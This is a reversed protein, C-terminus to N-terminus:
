NAGICKRQKSQSLASAQGTNIGQLVGNTEVNVFNGQTPAEPTYKLSDGVAKKNECQMGRNGWLNSNFLDHM